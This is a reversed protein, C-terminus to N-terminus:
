TTQVLAALIQRTSADIVGTQWDRVYRSKLPAPPTLGDLGKDSAYLHAAAAILSSDVEDVIYKGLAHTLIEDCRKASIPAVNEASILCFLFPVVPKLSFTYIMDGRQQRITQEVADTKVWDVFLSVLSDPRAAFVMRCREFISNRLVDITMMHDAPKMTRWMREFIRATENPHEDDWAVLAALLYPDVDEYGYHDYGHLRVYEKFQSEKSEDKKYLRMLAEKEYKEYGDMLALIAPATWMEPPLSSKGRNTHKRLFEVREANSGLLLFQGILDDGLAQASIASAATGPHECLWARRVRPVLDGARSSENALTMAEACSGRRVLAVLYWAECSQKDACDGELRRWTQRASELSAPLRACWQSLAFDRLHDPSKHMIFQVGAKRLAPIDAWFNIIRRLATFRNPWKEDFRASAATDLFLAEMLSEGADASVESACKVLECYRALTRKREAEVKRSTDDSPGPVNVKALLQSGVTEALGPSLRLDPDDADLMEEIVAPIDGFVGANENAMDWEDPSLRSQKNMQALLNKQVGKPTKRLLGLAAERDIDAWATM